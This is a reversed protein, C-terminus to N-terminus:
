ITRIQLRQMPAHGRFGKRAAMAQQATEKQKEAEAKRNRAERCDEPKGMKTPVRGPDEIAYGSLIQAMPVAALTPSTQSVRPVLHKSGKQRKQSRPLRMAKGM